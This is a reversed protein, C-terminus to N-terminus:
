DGVETSWAASSGYGSLEAGRVRAADGAMASAQVSAGLDERRREVRSLKKREKLRKIELSAARATAPLAFTEGTQDALLRLYRLQKPSAQKSYHASNTM